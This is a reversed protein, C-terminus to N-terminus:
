TNILGIEKELRQIPMPHNYNHNAFNAGPTPNACSISEIYFGLLVVAEGRESIHFKTKTAIV